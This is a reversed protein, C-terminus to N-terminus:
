RSQIRGLMVALSAAALRLADFGHRASPIQLASLGCRALPAAHRPVDGILISTDTELSAGSPDRPDRGPPISLPLDSPAVNLIVASPAPFLAKVSRAVPAQDIIDSGGM